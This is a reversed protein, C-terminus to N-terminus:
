SMYFYNDSKSQTYNEINLLQQSQKVSTYLRVISQEDVFLISNDGNFRSHHCVTM